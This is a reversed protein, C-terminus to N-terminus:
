KIIFPEGQLTKLLEVEQLYGPICPDEPDRFKVEKIAYIQLDEGVVKHVRSSQGKGIEGDLSIYTKGNATIIRQPDLSMLPHTVRTVPLSAARQTNKLPQLVSATIVPTASVSQSATVHRTDPTQLHMPVLVQPVHHRLPPVSAGSLQPTIILPPVSSQTRPTSEARVTYSPQAILQLPPTTHGSQPTVSHVVQPSQLPTHLVSHPVTKAALPTSPVPDLATHALLSRPTDYVASPTAPVASVTPPTTTLTESEDELV